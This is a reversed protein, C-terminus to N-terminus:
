TKKEKVKEPEAPKESEYLDLLYENKHAIWHLKPYFLVGQEGLWVLMASPEYEDVSNEACWTHFMKGLILRESFHLFDDSLKMRIHEREEKNM